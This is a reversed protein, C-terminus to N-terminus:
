VCLREKQQTMDFPKRFNKDFWSLNQYLLHGSLKELCMSVEICMMGLKRNSACTRISELDNVVYNRTDELNGGANKTEQNKQQKSSQWFGMKM